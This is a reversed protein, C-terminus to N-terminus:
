PGFCCMPKARRYGARTSRGAASAPPTTVTDSVPPESM